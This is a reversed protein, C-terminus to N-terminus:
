TRMKPPKNSLMMRYTIVAAIVAPVVGFVIFVVDGPMRFWEIMRVFGLNMYSLNRAHWYGNELVDRLQMVGGPFLNLVIMLALGANLGWFSVKIYKEPRVWQEETLVH